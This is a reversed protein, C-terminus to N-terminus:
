FRFIMQVSGTSFLPIFHCFKKTCRFLVLHVEQVQLTYTYVPVYMNGSWQCLSQVPFAITAIVVNGCGVGTSCEQNGASPAEASGKFSWVPDVSYLM